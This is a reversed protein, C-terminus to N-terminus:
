RARKKIYEDVLKKSSAYDDDSPATLLIGDSMVKHDHATKEAAMQADKSAQMMRDSEAKLQEVAKNADVAKAEWEKNALQCMSFGAQATALDARDNARTLTLWVIISLLVAVVVLEAYTRLNALM